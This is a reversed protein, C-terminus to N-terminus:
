VPARMVDRGGVAGVAARGATARGTEVASGGTGDGLVSGDADGSTTESRSTTEAGGASNAENPPEAAIAGERDPESPGAPTEAATETPEQADRELTKVLESYARHFATRAEAHYRLFLRAS